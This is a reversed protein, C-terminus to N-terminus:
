PTAGRPTRREVWLLFFLGVALVMLLPAVGGHLLDFTDRDQRYAHFLAVVRVQNLVFVLPLGALLGLARRRWPIPTVLMAAVLLCAIDVGECGNLVNLGGGRARLRPGDAVVGIAPWGGDILAAATRVTLTDIVFREVAGGRQATYTGQLAAFLVVFAAVRWLWGRRPAAPRAVEAPM